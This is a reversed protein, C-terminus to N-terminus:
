RGLLGDQILQALLTVTEKADFEEGYLWAQFVPERIMGLLLRALTLPDGQGVVGLGQGTQIATALRETAARYFGRLGENGEEDIGAAEAFLVRAVEDDETLTLFLRGLNERVQTPIDRRVDIPHVAGTVAEMMEALVAQFCARKSDFYNYFTGRAVGAEDIIQAVSARHYGLAAFVTRAARLLQARRADPNM